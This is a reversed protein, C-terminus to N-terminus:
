AAHALEHDLELEFATRESVTVPGSPAMLWAVLLIAFVVLAAIVM